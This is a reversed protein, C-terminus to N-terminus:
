IKVTDFDIAYDSPLIRKKMGSFADNWPYLVSTLKSVESSFRSDCKWFPWNLFFDKNSDHGM